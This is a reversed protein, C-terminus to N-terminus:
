SLLRIRDLINLAGVAISELTEVPQRFSLGVSSQGSLNYMEDLAARSIVQLVSRFDTPAASHL